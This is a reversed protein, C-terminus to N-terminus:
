QSAPMRATERTPRAGGTGAAEAPLRTRSPPSACGGQSMSRRAPSDRRGWRTALSLAARLVVNPREVHPWHGTGRLMLARARPVQRQVAAVVTRGSVPDDRGFVLLLEATAAAHRLAGLWRERRERRERMYDLRCFVTAAHRRMGVWSTAVFEDSVACGFLPRLAHKLVIPALLSGAISPFRSAISQAVTPRHAEPLLGANLLLMPPAARGREKLRATLEQAVTCGYDHALFLTKGRAPDLSGRALVSELVDTQEGITLRCPATSSGGFGVFDFVLLRTADKAVWAEVLPSFDFSSTPFGHLLVFTLAGRGFERMWIRHGCHKELRGQAYFRARQTVAASSGLRASLIWSAFLLATVGAVAACTIRM